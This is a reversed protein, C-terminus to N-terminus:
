RKKKFREDKLNFSVVMRDYGPFGEVPCWAVWYFAGKHFTGVDLAPRSFHTERVRRWRNTKLEFVDIETKFPVDIDPKFTVCSSSVLRLM